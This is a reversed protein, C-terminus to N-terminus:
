VIKWWTIKLFDPLFIVFIMGGSRANRALNKYRFLFTSRNTALEFVYIQILLADMHSM